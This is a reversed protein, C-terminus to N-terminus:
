GALTPIMLGKKDRSHSYSVCEPTFVGLGGNIRNMLKFFKNCMKSVVKGEHELKHAQFRDLYNFKKNCIDCTFIFHNKQKVINKKKRKNGQLKLQIKLKRYNFM